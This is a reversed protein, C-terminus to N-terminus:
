VEKDIVKKTRKEIIDSRVRFDQPGFAIDKQVNEEYLQHEPYQFVIVVKSRLDKIEKLKKEKSLSYNGITVAGSTATVPGHVYEAPTTKSSGTHGIIAVY